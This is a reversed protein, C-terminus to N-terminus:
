EVLKFSRYKEYNAKARQGRQILKAHGDAFANQIVSTPEIPACARVFPETLSTRDYVIRCMSGDPSKFYSPSDLNYRFPSGIAWTIPDGIETKEKGDPFIAFSVDCCNRGWDGILAEKEDYIPEQQPMYFIPLVMTIIFFVACLMAFICIFVKFPERVKGPAKKKTNAALWESKTPSTSKAM